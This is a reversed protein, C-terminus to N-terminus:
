VLIALELIIDLEYLPYSNGRVVLDEVELRDEGVALDM